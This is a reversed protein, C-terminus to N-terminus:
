GTKVVQIVLRLQRYPAAIAGNKFLLFQVEWDGVTPISVIYLETWSQGDGLTVNLWSWTTRNLEITEYAMATANYFTKVGVLDVRVIYSVRMAEHNAIGLLFRSEESANLRIPHVSASGDSGLIYFETFPEGPPPQLVLYALTGFALVISGALVITL